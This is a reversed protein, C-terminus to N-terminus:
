GMTHYRVSAKIMALARISSLQIEIPAHHDNYSVLKIRDPNQAKNIYKVVIFDDGNLSFAILYIEGWIICDSNQVQKFLVVDGSKILPYMSDGRVFLGGDCSPMNPLSIYGVPRTHNHHNNEISLLGAAAEMEFLPVRQQEVNRDTRLGFKNVVPNDDPTDTKLMAGKGTFLWNANLDPFSLLLKEINEQSLSGRKRAKGIIGNGLGVKLTVQNDNLDNYKLFVDLRDFFSLMKEM